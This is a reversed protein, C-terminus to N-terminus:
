EEAEEAIELNLIKQITDYNYVYKSYTDRILQRKRPNLKEQEVFTDISQNIAEFLDNM